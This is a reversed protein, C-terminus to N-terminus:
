MFTDEYVFLHWRRDALNVGHQEDTILKAIEELSMTLLPRTGIAKNESGLRLM